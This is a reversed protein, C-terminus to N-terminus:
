GWKAKHQCGKCGDNNRISQIADVISAYMMGCGICKIGDDVQLNYDSPNPEPEPKAEPEPGDTLGLAEEYTLGDVSLGRQVFTASIIGLLQYSYGSAGIMDILKYIYRLQEPNLDEIFTIFQSLGARIDEEIRRREEDHTM